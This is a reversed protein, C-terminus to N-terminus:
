GASVRADRGWARHHLRQFGAGCRKPPRNGHRHDLPQVV